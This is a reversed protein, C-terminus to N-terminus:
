SWSWCRGELWPEDELVHEKQGGENPEEGDLLGVETGMEGGKQEIEM